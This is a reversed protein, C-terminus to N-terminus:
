HAFEQETKSIKGRFGLVDTRLRYLVTYLIEVIKRLSHEKLHLPSFYTAFMFLTPLILSKTEM